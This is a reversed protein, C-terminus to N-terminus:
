NIVIGATDNITRIVTEQAPAPAFLNWALIVIAIALGGWFLFKAWAAINAAGEGKKFREWANLVKRERDRLAESNVNANELIIPIKGKNYDEVNIWDKILAPFKGTYENPKGWKHPFAYDEHCWYTRISKGAYPIQHQFQTGLIIHKEQGEELGPVKFIQGKVNKYLEITGNKRELFMIPDQANVLRERIRLFKKEAALLTGVREAYQKVQESEKQLTM